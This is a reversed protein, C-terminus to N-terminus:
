RAFHGRYYEYVWGVAAIIVLPISLYTLWFQFGICLGLVFLSGAFAFFMPWWSWPSFEGIEPNGDDVDSEPLDEIMTGGLKRQVLWLYVAIFAALGACGFLAVTGAWELRSHTILNWGTYLAGVIVFYVAVITFIVINSKM